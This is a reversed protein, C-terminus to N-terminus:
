AALQGSSRDGSSRVQAKQGKRCGEPPPGDVCQAYLLQTILLAVVPREAGPPHNSDLTSKAGMLQTLVQLRDFVTQVGGLAAATGSGHEEQPM